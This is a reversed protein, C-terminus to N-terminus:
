NLKCWAGAKTGICKVVAPGTVNSFSSCADSSPISMGIEGNSLWCCACKDMDLEAAQLLTDPSALIGFHDACATVAEEFTMYVKDPDPNFIRTM